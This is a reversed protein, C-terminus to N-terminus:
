RLYMIEWTKGNETYTHLKKFGISYHARLSRKNNQDVETVICDFPPQYAARMTNYLGRFIGKGRYAKDICIQGMVLFSPIARTELRDSLAALHSNIEIFMPQLETIRNEFSPHMSLAYGVVKNGEKAIVHPCVEQFSRLLDYDHQLTVFGESLREEESIAQPLSRQQLRLIQHLEENKTSLTYKIM